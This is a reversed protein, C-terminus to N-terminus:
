AIYRRITSLDAWRGKLSNNQHSTRPTQNVLSYIVATVGVDSGISDDEANDMTDLPKPATIEELLRM